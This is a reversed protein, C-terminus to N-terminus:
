ISGFTALRNRIRNELGTLFKKRAPNREAMRKEDELQALSAARMLERPQVSSIASLTKPGLAGDVAVPVGLSNLGQQIYKTAGGAGRHFAMDQVFPQLENPMKGVIPATYQQIYEAAAEERREPPLSSIARFAQPHYKDTIGAVEFSGGMDGTPINYVALNGRKDRRAEWNVTQKAADLLSSAQPAEVIEYDLEPAPAPPQVQQEVMPAPQPQPQPPQTSVQPKAQPIPLPTLGRMAQAKALNQEYRQM